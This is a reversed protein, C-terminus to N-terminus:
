GRVWETQEIERLTTDIFLENEILWTELDKERGFMIATWVLILIIAVVKKFRWKPNAARKLKTIIKRWWRTILFLVLSLWVIYAIINTLWWLFSAPLINAVLIAYTPSCTNFVPWLVWWLVIDWRVGTADTQQAKNTAKEVWTVHMLWQWAAPFLLLLWFVILIVAAAKTLTDPRLWLQSVLFQLILTFILVSIAFSLIIVRPRSKRGNVVWWWVIVPLIPLVCPALVTLVWAIFSLWLLWLWM